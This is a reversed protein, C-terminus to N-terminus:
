ADAHLAITMTEHLDIGVGSSIAAEFEPFSIKGDGDRDAEMITKDVIQQLQVDNLNTGVMMKLVQFLEGNSIFGDADMDYVKFAFELKRKENGKVAFMSLGTIFEEFSVLSDNNTDFIDVVRSVLPNMQLEPILLFEEKSLQGDRNADLRRFGRALLQLEETTFSSSLQLAELEEATLSSGAQGM